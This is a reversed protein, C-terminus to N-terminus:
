NDVTTFPTRFIRNLADKFNLPSNAFRLHINSPINSSRIVEAVTLTLNGENLDFSIDDISAYLFNAQDNMEVYVEDEYTLRSISLYEGNPNIARIEILEKWTIEPSVEIKDYVLSNM